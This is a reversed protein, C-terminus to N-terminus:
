MNQSILNNAMKTLIDKKETLDINLMILKSTVLLKQQM